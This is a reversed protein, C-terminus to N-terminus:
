VSGSASKFEGLPRAREGIKQVREIVAAVATPVDGQEVVAVMAGIDAAHEDPQLSAVPETVTNGKM